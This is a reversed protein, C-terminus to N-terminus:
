RTIVLRYSATVRDLADEVALTFPYVGAFRPQGVLRIRDPGDPRVEVGGPLVGAAVEVDLPPIPNELRVVAAYPAGARGAPLVESSIELPPTVDLELPTEGRIGRGDELELLARFAGVETPAGSLEVTAGRRIRLDLGPPFGGQIVRWRYPGGDGGEGRLDVRFSRRIRLPPLSPVEVRPVDDTTVELAVEASVQADVADDVRVEFAFRGPVQPAGRVQGDESLRLGEPLLSEATFRRPPVGGEARLRAEYPEGERASPLRRTALALAEAPRPPAIELELDVRLDELTPASVRVDLAFPYTGPDLPTGSVRLRDLAEASLDLGPPLRGEVIRALPRVRSPPDILLEGRYPEGV